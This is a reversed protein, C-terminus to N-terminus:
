QLMFFKNLAGVQQAGKFKAQQKEELQAILLNFENIFDNAKTKEKETKAEALMASLKGMVLDYDVEKKNTPTLGLKMMFLAMEPPTGKDQGPHVVQFGKQSKEPMKEIAERIVRLDGTYSGTSNLGLEQLQKAVEPSAQYKLLNNKSPGIHM